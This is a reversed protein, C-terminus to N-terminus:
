HTTKDFRDVFKQLTTFLPIKGTRLISKNNMFIKYIKEMALEDIKSHCHEMKLEQNYITLLLNAYTVQNLNELCPKALAPFPLKIEM